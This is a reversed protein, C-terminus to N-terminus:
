IKRAVPANLDRPTQPMNEGTEFWKTWAPHWYIDDPGIKEDLGILRYGDPPRCPNLPDHDIWKGDADFTFGQEPPNDMLYTISVDNEELWREIQVLTEPEYAAQIFSPGGSGARICSTFKNEYMWKFFAKTTESEGPVQPFKVGDMKRRFNLWGVVTIEAEHTDAM